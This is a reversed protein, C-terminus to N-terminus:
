LIPWSRKRRWGKCNMIKSDGELGHFPM